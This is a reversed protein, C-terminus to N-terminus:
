INKTGAKLGKSNRGLVVGWLGGVSGVKPENARFWWWRRGQRLMSPFLAAKFTQVVLCGPVQPVHPLLYAARHKNPTLRGPGLDVLDTGHRCVPTGPAVFCPGGVLQEISGDDAM